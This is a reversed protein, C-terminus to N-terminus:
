SPVTNFLEEDGGQGGRSVPNVLDFTHARSTGQTTSHFHGERRVRHERRYEAHSELREPLPGPEEGEGARGEALHLQVGVEKSLYTTHLATTCAQTFCNLQGHQGHRVM